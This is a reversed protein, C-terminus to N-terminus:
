EREEEPPANDDDGDVHMGSSKLEGEETEEIDDFDQELEDRMDMPEDM